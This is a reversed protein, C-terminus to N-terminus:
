GLAVFRPQARPPTPLVSPSYFMIATPFYNHVTCPKGNKAAILTEPKGGNASVRLIGKQPDAM